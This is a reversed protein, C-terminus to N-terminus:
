QGQTPQIVKQAFFRIAGKEMLSKDPLPCQTAFAWPQRGGARSGFGTEMSYQVLEGLTRGDTRDIIRVRAGAIWNSRGEPDEISEYDIAYRPLTGHFPRRNVYQGAPRDGTSADDHHHLLTYEMPGEAEEVVVREYGRLPSTSPKDRPKTPRLSPLAKSTQRYDFYLFNMIYETGIAEEPLGAGTWNQDAILVLREGAPRVHPLYIESVARATDLVDAKAAKCRQEFLLTAMALRTRYASEDAALNSRAKWTHYGPYGILMALVISAVIVVNPRRASSAYVAALIAIGIAAAYILAVPDFLGLSLGAGLM